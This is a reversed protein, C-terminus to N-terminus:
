RDSELGTWSFAALSGRPGRGRPLVACTDPRRAASRRVDRHGDPAQQQSADAFAVVSIARDSVAVERPLEPPRSGRRRIRGSAAITESVMDSAGALEERLASRLWPRM